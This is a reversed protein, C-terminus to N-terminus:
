SPLCAFASASSVFGNLNGTVDGILSGSFGLASLHGAFTADPSNLRAIHSSLREDSLTGSNLNSVNRYSTGIALVGIVIVAGGLVGLSPLLQNIFKAISATASQWLKNLPKM